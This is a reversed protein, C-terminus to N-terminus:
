KGSSSEGSAPMSRLLHSYSQFSSKGEEEKTKRKNQGGYLIASGPPPTHSPCVLASGQQPGLARACGRSRGRAPDLRTGWCKFAASSDRPPCARPLLSSHQAGSRGLPVGAGSVRRLARGGAGAGPAPEACGVSDM